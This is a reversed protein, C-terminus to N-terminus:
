QALTDIYQLASELEDESFVRVGNRSLLEATVGRGEVLAKDFAGSHVRHVGCSPSDEKLIATKISYKRILELSTQAGKVFGETKDESKISIVKGSGELVNAATKGAEIECPDRPVGLGGALEPCIVAVEGNNLMKHLRPTVISKGNQADYRCCQGILCASMLLKVTM